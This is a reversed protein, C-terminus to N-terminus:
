VGDFIPQVTRFVQWLAGLAAFGGAGAAAVRQFMTSAVAPDIAKLNLGAITLLAVAITGFITPWGGGILVRWVLSIRGQLSAAEAVAAAFAKTDASLDDRYVRRGIEKLKAENNKRIDEFDSQLQSWALTLDNAALQKEVTELAKQATDSKRKAEEVKGL